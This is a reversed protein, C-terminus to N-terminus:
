LIEEETAPSDQTNEKEQFSDTHKAIIEPIIKTLDERHEVVIVDDQMLQIWGAVVSQRRGSGTEKIHLHYVHYSKRAEELLEASTIDMGQSTGMINDIVRGPLIPLTPEDGITFLFGKKGRKEFSDLVTHRAAFYWALMYSEGANGGGGGELYVDTLWKDLLEDCTEFQGVQLPSSDYEHDGIALFLMQPNPVGQQMIKGMITPLDTKVLSHPIMGMSGTVDLALIIPVSNPNDESDKSERLSVGLPSMENKITTQKFIQQVSKTEYGEVSSRINRDDVSYSGYGM